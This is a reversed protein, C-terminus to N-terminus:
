GTACASGALRLLDSPMVQRLEKVILDAPELASEAHYTMVAVCKMGARHAAEVGAPADEIVVCRHPPLKLREAAALFVDPHPKGRRVDDGSVIVSLLDRVGMAGVVLDINARPGSSGVALRAGQEASQRVLEVAGPIIPAEDAILARYIAEKRDALSQIGKESTEGFVLPIIDRNQRGFTEHFQAESVERGVERALQRWSELHPRASDVLVGDMDFIIGIDHAPKM